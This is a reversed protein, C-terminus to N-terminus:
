GAACAHVPYFIGCGTCLGSMTRGRSMALAETKGGHRENNSCVFMFENLAKLYYHRMLDGNMKIDELQALLYVYYYIIIPM